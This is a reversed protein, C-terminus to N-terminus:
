ISETCPLFYCSAYKEGGQLLDEFFRFINSLMTRPLIFMIYKLDFFDIPLTQLFLPWFYVMKTYYTCKGHYFARKPASNAYPSHRRRM